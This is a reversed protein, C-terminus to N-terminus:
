RRVAEDVVVGLIFAGVGILTKWKGDEAITYTNSSCKISKYNLMADVMKSECVKM